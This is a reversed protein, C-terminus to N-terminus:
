VLGFAAGGAVFPVTRRAENRIGSVLWLCIQCFTRGGGRGIISHFPIGIRQCKRLDMGLFCSSSRHDMNEVAGESRHQLCATQLGACTRLEHVDFLGIDHAANMLRIDACARGDDFGVGEACAGQLESMVAKCVAHRLQIGCCHADGFLCCAAMCFDCAGDARCPAEDLRQPIEGKIFRIRYEECLCLGKGLCPRVVEDDLGADVQLLHPRGQQRCFVCTREGDDALEGVALVPAGDRSGIRLAGGHRQFGHSSGDDTHVAGKARFLQNGDYPGECFVAAHGDADQGIRAHGIQLVAFCFEGHPRIIEASPSRLECRRTGSIDAAAAARCRFM